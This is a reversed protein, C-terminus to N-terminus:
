LPKICLAGVSVSNNLSCICHEKFIPDGLAILCLWGVNAMVRHSAM